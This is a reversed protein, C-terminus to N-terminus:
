GFSIIMTDNRQFIITRGFLIFFLETEDVINMFNDFNNANKRPRGTYRDNEFMIFAKYHFFVRTSISISTM